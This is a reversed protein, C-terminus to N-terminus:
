VKDCSLEDNCEAEFDSSCFSDVCTWGPVIPVCDVGIGRLLPGFIAFLEARRSDEVARQNFVCEDTYDRTSDRLRWKIWVKGGLKCPMCDLYVGDRDRYVSPARSDIDRAGYDMIVADWPAPTRLRDDIPKCHHRLWQEQFQFGNDKCWIALRTRQINHWEQWSLHQAYGLINELEAHQEFTLATGKANM